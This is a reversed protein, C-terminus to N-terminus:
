AKMRHPQGVAINLPSWRSRRVLLKLSDRQVLTQGNRDDLLEVRGPFVDLLRTLFDTPDQGAAELGDAQFELVIVVNMNHRLLETMGTLIAGEAGEADIKIFDVPPWDKSDSWVDLSTTKVAIQESLTDQRPYVTSGGTDRAVRYLVREGAASTVALPVVSVLDAMGNAEINRELMTRNAPDPEFSWVKGTPGVYKGALLSFYGVHAGIDLVTMGPRLTKSLYDAIEQEYTGAALGRITNSPRNSDYWITLDGVQIPCPLGAM